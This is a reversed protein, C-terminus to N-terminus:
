QKIYEREREREREREKLNRVNENFNMFDFILNNKHWVELDYYLTLANM